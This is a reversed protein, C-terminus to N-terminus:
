PSTGSRARRASGSSAPPADEAGPGRGEARPGPSEAAPEEAGPDGTGRVGKGSQAGPGRGGSEREGRGEGGKEGVRDGARRVGKGSDADPDEPGGVNPRQVRGGGAGRWRGAGAEKGGQYGPGPDEATRM